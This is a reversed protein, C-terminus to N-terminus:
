NRLLISTNMSFFGHFTSLVCSMRQQVDGDHLRDNQETPLRHLKAHIAARVDAAIREGVSTVAFYRLLVIAYVAVGILIVARTPFGDHATALLLGIGVMALGTLIWTALIALLWHRYPRFFDLLAPEKHTMSEDPMAGRENDPQHTTQSIPRRALSRRHA